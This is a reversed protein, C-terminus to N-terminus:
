YNFELQKFVRRFNLRSQKALEEFVGKKRLLGSVEQESADMINKLYTKM